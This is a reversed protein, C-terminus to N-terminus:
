IGHPLIPVLIDIISNPNNWNFRADYLEYQIFNRKIDIAISSCPILATYIEYLSKKIGQTHGQHHFVAYNGVPIEITKFAPKDETFPIATLYFYTDDRKYTVGFKKWQDSQQSLGHKQLERNFLKWHKQIIGYNVQQSRTLEVELGIIKTPETHTIINM